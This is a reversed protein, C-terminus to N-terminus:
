KMGLEKKAYERAAFFGKGKTRCLKEFEDKQEQTKLKGLWYKKDHSSKKGAKSRNARSLEAMSVFAYGNGKNLEIFGKDEETLKALDVYIVKADDDIVVNKTVRKIAM